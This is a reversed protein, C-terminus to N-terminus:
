FKLLDNNNNINNVAKLFEISPKPVWQRVHFFGDDELFRTISLKIKKDISKIKIIDVFDYAALFINYVLQQICKLDYINEYTDIYNILLFMFTLNEFYDDDSLQFKIYFKLNKYQFKIEHSNLIEYNEINFKNKLYDQNYSEPTIFEVKDLDYEKATEQEADNNNRTTDLNNELM